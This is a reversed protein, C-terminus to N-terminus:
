HYTYSTNYDSIAVKTTDYSATAVEGPMLDFYVPHEGVISSKYITKGNKVVQISGGTAVTYLIFYEMRVKSANSLPSSPTLQDGTAKYFKGGGPISTQGSSFMIQGPITCNKIASINYAQRCYIPYASDGLKSDHLQIEAFNSENSVYYRENAGTFGNHAFLNRLDKLAVFTEDQADSQILVSPQPSLVKGSQNMYLTEGAGVVFKGWSKWTPSSTSAAFTTLYEAQNTIVALRNVGSAFLSGIYVAGGKGICFPIGNPGSLYATGIQVVTNAVEMGRMYTDASISYTEGHVAYYNGIQVSSCNNFACLPKGGSGLNLERFSLKGCNNFILGGAGTPSNYPVTTEYHDFAVDAAANFESSGSSWQEWVAGLNGLGSLNNSISFLRGCNRVNYWGSSVNNIGQYDDTLDPWIAANEATSAKGKTYILTGAYSQASLHIQLDQNFAEFRLAYDGNAITPAKDDAIGKNDFMMFFQASVTQAIYFGANKEVMFKGHIGFKGNIPNSVVGAGTSLPYVGARIHHTQSIRITRNYSSIILRCPYGTSSGVAAAKLCNDFAEDQGADSEDISLAGAWELHIKDKVGKRKWRAGGVTVVVTCSNDETTTDSADYYFEGGGVTTATNHRRVLISQKDVDPEISRLADLTDAQGVLKFGDGSSLNQRLTDGDMLVFHTVDNAFSTADTGITTFGVDTAANLRYYQNNYRIYQNRASFQFPGNEYDGLFVYGSSDLFAQFRNERDTQLEVFDAERQSQSSLFDSEKDQQSVEFATRQGQMQSEFEAEKEALEFNISESLGSAIDKAEDRALESSVAADKAESVSESIDILPKEISLAYQKAEAASVAAIAAFQAAQQTDTIAM